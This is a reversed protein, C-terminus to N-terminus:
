DLCDQVDPLPLRVPRVRHQDLMVEFHLHASTSAGTNGCRGIRQGVQVQQGLRVLRQSLHLYRTSLVQGDYEGHELRVFNGAEDSFMSVMVVGDAAAYVSEGPVCGVDQGGHFDIISKDFVGRRNGYTSAMSRDEDIPYAWDFVGYDALTIELEHMRHGRVRYTSPDAHPDASCVEPLDDPEGTDHLGGAERDLQEMPPAQVMVYEVTVRPPPASPAAQVGTGFLDGGLSVLLAVSLLSAPIIPTIRM